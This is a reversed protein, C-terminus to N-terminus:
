NVSVLGGVLDERVRREVFKLPPVSNFLSRSAAVCEAMEAGGKRTGIVKRATRGKTHRGAHARIM